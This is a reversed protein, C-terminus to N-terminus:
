QEVNSTEPVAEPSVVQDQVPPSVAPGPQVIGLQLGIWALIPILFMFIIRQGAVSAAAATVRDLVKLLTAKEQKNELDAAAKALSRAQEAQLLSQDIRVLIDGMKENAELARGLRDHAVATMEAQASASRAADRLIERVDRLLEITTDSESM